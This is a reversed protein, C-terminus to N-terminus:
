KKTNKLWKEYSRKENETLHENWKCIAVCNKVWLNNEFFELSVKNYLSNKKMRFFDSLFQTEKEIWFSKAKSDSNKAFENALKYLVYIQFINNSQM